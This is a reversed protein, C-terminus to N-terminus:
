PSSKCTVYCYKTKNQVVLWSKRPNSTDNCLSTRNRRREKPMNAIHSNYNKGFDGGAVLEIAWKIEKLSNRKTQTFLYLCSAFVTWNSQDNNFGSVFEDHVLKFTYTETETYLSSYSIPSWSYYILPNMSNPSPMTIKVLLKRVKFPSEVWLILLSTMLM